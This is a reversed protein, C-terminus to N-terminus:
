PIRLNMVENVHGGGTGIRLWSSVIWAEVDWKSYIWRIILGDVGPDELNDSERLSGWWFWTYL